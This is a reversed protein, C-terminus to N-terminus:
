CLIGREKMKDLSALEYAPQYAYQLWDGKLYVRYVYIGNQLIEKDILALTDYRASYVLEGEKFRDRVAEEPILNPKFYNHSLQREPVAYKELTSKITHISRHIAKSIESVPVGALYETIIYTAEDVTIATGKKSARLRADNEKKAKYNEILRDLRTTNYSINLIGCANKKTAGKEELYKIVRELSADDLRENDYQASRKKITM